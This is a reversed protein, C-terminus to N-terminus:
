AWSMRKSPGAACAVGMALALGARVAAGTFLQTFAMAANQM